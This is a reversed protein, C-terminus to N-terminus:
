PPNLCGLDDLVRVHPLGCFPELRCKAPCTCDNFGTLLLPAIRVTEALASADGSLQALYELIELKVDEVQYSHDGDDVM